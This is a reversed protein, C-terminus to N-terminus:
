KQGLALRFDRVTKAASEVSTSLPLGAAETLATFRSGHVVKDWDNGFGELKQGLAVLPLWDWATGLAELAKGIPGSVVAVAGVVALVQGAIEVIQM